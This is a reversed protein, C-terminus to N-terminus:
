HVHYECTLCKEAAEENFAIDKPWYEKPMIGESVM